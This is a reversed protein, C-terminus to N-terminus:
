GLFYLRRESISWCFLDKLDVDTGYKQQVVTILTPFETGIQELLGMIFPGAAGNNVMSGSAVLLSVRVVDHPLELIKGGNVDHGIPVSFLNTQPLAIDESQSTVIILRRTQEDTGRHLVVQFESSETAQRFSPAMASSPFSSPSDYIESVGSVDTVGPIVKALTKIREREQPEM